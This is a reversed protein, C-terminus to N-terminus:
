EWKIPKTNRGRWWREPRYRKSKKMGELQETHSALDEYDQLLKELLKRCEEARTRWHKIRDIYAIKSMSM